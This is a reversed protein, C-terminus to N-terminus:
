QLVQSARLDTTLRQLVTEFIPDTKAQTRALIHVPVPPQEYAKLVRKLTGAKLEDFVQYSLLRGLGHGDRVVAVLTEVDDVALRYRLRPAGRKGSNSFQWTVPYGGRVSLIVEHDVLDAPSRPVGRSKLYSPAGVIVRGLFGVQTRVADAQSVPGIRVALDVREDVMDMTRDQLMLECQLEPHEDLLASVIPAVHRRGFQVPATIRLRHIGSPRLAKGTAAAYTDLLARAETVLTQGRPTPTSYRRGRHILPEGIRGELSALVRTVAPPSRNLRRAAGVLSGADVIAVLTSLEDLRDM